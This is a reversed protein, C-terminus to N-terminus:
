RTQIRTPAKASYTVGSGALRKFADTILGNRGATEIHPRAADATKCQRAMKLVEPGWCRNAHKHLAGTSKADGKDLFRRVPPKKCGPRSCKFEHCRRGQRTRIAPIPEYFAYIPSTWDRSLRATPQPLHKKM